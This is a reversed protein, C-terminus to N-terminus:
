CPRPDYPTLQDNSANPKAGGVTPLTTAPPTATSLGAAQPVAPAGAVTHASVTENTGVDVRVTGPPVKPDPQITVAGTFDGLVALGQATQGPSYRVLTEAPTGLVPTDSETTVRLGATTLASGTDAALHASGVANYVEVADPTQPPPLATPDWARIVQDDAPQVAFDVDGLHYGDYVYNSYTTVPLTTEPLNIATVHRYAGALSVLQDRLGPDITVQNTVASLFSNLKLPDYLGQSQATDILVRLFTHDRTIRALDSEPDFPWAARNTGQRSPPDYQLHRSRVLALATAGNINQCGPQAINLQAEQDYLPEPFDMRIGGLADVTQEFGCFNVEVYHNIAIGLDDQIATILNAPGQKGDNLASDIKEYPGSPTGAPMAEFLDRPVSLVSAARAKPDLHMVMIVDSLSGSLQSPDGFQAIQAKTTLCARSQNGILLVNEPPLGRATDKSDPTLGKVALTHISDIRYRFYGFGFGAAVLTAAVLVNM